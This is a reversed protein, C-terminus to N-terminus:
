KQVAKRIRSELEQEAWENVANIHPQASVWGSGNRKRHGNELLHTLQYRKDHVTVKFKGKRFEKKVTWGKAYKGSRTPSAASVKAKAEKGVDSLIEKIDEELLNSYEQMASVLQKSFDDPM